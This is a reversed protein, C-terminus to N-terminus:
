LAPFLESCPFPFYQDWEETLFEHYHWSEPLYELDGPVFEKTVKKVSSPVSQAGISVTAPQLDPLRAIVKLMTTLAVRTMPLGLCQHPGHGLHIYSDLPRTLDVANPNPFAAPDRSAAKLDIMVKDGKKFKYTQEYPKSKGTSPDVSSNKDVIPEAVDQAVWRFVGTEGNLRSAEMFYHMLKDFAEDSDDRALAQVKPWHEKLGEPSLLFDLAQGFLQGQNAVMGGATGIINGWVLDDVDPDAKVLQAIMHLGYDRLEPSTPDIASIGAEALSGGAKVVSVLLKVFDGLQQTAEYAKQRLPFSKPPDVDFFVCIFVAAMIMYLQQETLIGRPFAETKLPLSFLEAGFHVHAMNGVDRIIDVHHKGALTRSKEQLLKTTIHEYFTRVAKLWKEDGKPPARSSGGLYLAKDMLERSKANAPGDGSLM